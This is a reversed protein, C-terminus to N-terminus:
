EARPRHCSATWDGSPDLRLLDREGGWADLVIWRGGAGSPEDRFRHAHGCLLHSCRSSALRADVERSQLETTIPRKADLARRSARRLRRALGLALPRPLHSATWGVCRSRLVRRLRQYARDETSLEDGHLFLTRAGDPGSGILGAGRLRCGSRAEFSRDLLFDRNGPVLDLRTGARSLSALAELITPMTGLGLQTPGVWFEFLDGLIVVRPVGELRGLWGRFEAAAERDDPDLHLDALVLTGPVLEVEPLAKM